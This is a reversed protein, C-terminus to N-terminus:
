QVSSRSWVTFVNVGAPSSTPISPLLPHGESVPAVLM